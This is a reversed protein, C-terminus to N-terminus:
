RFLFVLTIWRVCSVRIPFHAVSIMVRPAGREVVGTGNAIRQKVEQNLIAFAKPAEVMIRRSASSNTLRRALEVDVISIPQLDAKKMLGVLEALDKLFRTRALQV